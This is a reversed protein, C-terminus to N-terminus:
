SLMNVDSFLVAEYIFLLIFPLHFNFFSINYFTNASQNLLVDSSSQPAEKLM